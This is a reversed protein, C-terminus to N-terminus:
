PQHYMTSNNKKYAKTVIAWNSDHPGNAGGKSALSRGAGGASAKAFKALKSKIGGKGKGGSGGYSGFGKGAPAGGGGGFGGGGGGGGSAAHFGSGLDSNPGEDGGGGAGAAGAGAGGAAGLGGGLGGGFGGGAGAAGAGGKKDGGIGDTNAAGPDNLFLGGGNPNTVAGMGALGTNRTGRPTIEEKDKCEILYQAYEGSCKDDEEDDDDEPDPVTPINGDNGKLGALATILGAIGQMMMGLEAMNMGMIGETKKQEGRCKEGQASVQSMPGRAEGAAVSQLKTGPPGAVPHSTVWTELNTHTDKCTKDCDETYAKCANLINMTAAQADSVIVENAKLIELAQADAAMTQRVNAATALDIEPNGSCTKILDGDYEKCSDIPPMPGTAEASFSFLIITLVNFFLKIM